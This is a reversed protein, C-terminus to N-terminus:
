MFFDILKEGGKSNAQLHVSIRPVQVTLSGEDQVSKLYDIVEKVIPMEEALASLPPAGGKLNQLADNVTQNPLVHELPTGAIKTQLDEFDKAIIELNFAKLLLLFSQRSIFRAARSEQNKELYANAVSVLYNTYNEQMYQSIRLGLNVHFGKGVIESVKKEKQDFFSNFDFNLGFDAEFEGRFENGLYMSLVELYRDIMTTVLPHDFSVGFVVFDGDVGFSIKLLDLMQSVSEDPIMMKAMELLNNVMEELKTKSELPNSSKFRFVLTPVDIGINLGKLIQSSFEAQNSGVIVKLNLASKTNEPSGM